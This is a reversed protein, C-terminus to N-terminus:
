KNCQKKSKANECYDNLKKALNNFKRKKYEIKRDLEKNKEQYYEILEKIQEDALDKIISQNNEFVDATKIIEEKPNYKKVGTISEYDIEKNLEEVTNEIEEIETQESKKVFLSKIKNFFKNILRNEYKIMQM